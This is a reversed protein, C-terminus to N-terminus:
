WNRRSGSRSNGSSSPSTVNKPMTPSGVESSRARARVNVEDDITAFGDDNLVDDPDGAVDCGRPRSRIGIRGIPDVDFAIGINVAHQRQAFGFTM